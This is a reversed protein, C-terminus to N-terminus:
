IKILLNLYMKLMTSFNYKTTGYYRNRFNINIWNIKYNKQICYSLVCNFLEINKYKSICEIKKMIKKLYEFKM